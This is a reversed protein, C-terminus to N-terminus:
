GDEKHGFWELYPRIEEDHWPLPEGYLGMGNDGYKLDYNKAKWAEKAVTFKNREARKDGSTMGYLHDGPQALSSQRLGCDNASWVVRGNKAAAATNYSLGEIRGGIGRSVRPEFGGALANTEEWNAVTDPDSGVPIFVDPMGGKINEWRTGLVTHKPLATGDSVSIKIYWKTRLTKPYEPVVMQIEGTVLHVRRVQLMAVSGYYLWDDIVDIGDPCVVDQARISDISATRTVSRNSNVYALPEGEVIHRILEGTEMNYESIRNAERESVILSGQRAPEGVTGYVDNLRGNRGNWEKCDFPGKLGTIFETVKAPTSHNQNSHQVKCIRNRMTDAVFWRVGEPHPFVMVGRLDVMEADMDQRTSYSDLCAGWINWFGRREEPIESWDGVLETLPHMPADEGNTGDDDGFVGPDEWHPPPTKHRYGCLTSMTGSPNIKRLGHVDWVYTNHIIGGFEPINATGPHIETVLGLMAQGRPGDIIPHAPYKRHLNSANYRQKCMANIIGHKDIQAEKNQRFRPVILWENWLDEYEPVYDFKPFARKELPLTLPDFKAPVWVIRHQGHMHHAESETVVPMWKQEVSVADGHLVFMPFPVGRRGPVDTEIDFVHWGETITAADVVFASKSDEAPPTDTAIVEGDCLLRYEAGDFTFRSGGSILCNYRIEQEPGKIIGLRLKRDYRGGTLYKDFVLMRTSLNRTMSLPRDDPEPDPVPDPDPDPIPDPIPDPEPDPVPDPIPDPPPNELEAIRAELVLVLDEMAEVNDANARISDAIEGM